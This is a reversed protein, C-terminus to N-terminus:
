LHDVKLNDRHDVKRNVFVVGPARALHGRKVVMPKGKGVSGREFEGFPAVTPSVAAVIPGRRSSPDTPVSVAIPLISASSECPM